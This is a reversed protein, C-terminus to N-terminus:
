TKVMVVAQCWSRQCFRYCGQSDWPVEVREEHPHVRCTDVQAAPARGAVEWDKDRCLRRPDVGLKTEAAEGTLECFM